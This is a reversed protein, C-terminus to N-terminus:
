SLFRSDGNRTSVAILPDERMGPCNRRYLDCRKDRRHEGPSFFPTYFVLSYMNVYCSSLDDFRRACIFPCRHRGYTATPSLVAAAGPTRFLIVTLFILNLFFSLFELLCMPINSCSRAVTLDDFLSLTANGIPSRRDNGTIPATGILISILRYLRSDLAPCIDSGSFSLAFFSYRSVHILLIEGSRDVLIPQSRSRIKKESTVLVGKYRESFLVFFITKSSPLEATRRKEKTLRSAAPAVEAEELSDRSGLSRLIFIAHAM